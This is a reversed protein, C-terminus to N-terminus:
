ALGSRTALWLQHLREFGDQLLEVAHPTPAWNAAPSITECIAPMERKGQATAEAHIQALLGGVKHRTAVDEPAQWLYEAAERGQQILQGLPDMLPGPGPGSSNRDTM